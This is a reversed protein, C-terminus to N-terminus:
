FTTSANEPDYLDGGAIIIPINPVKGEALSKLVDAEKVLHEARWADKLFCIKKAASKVQMRLCRLPLSPGPISPKYNALERRAIIAEEETAISVTPDLGRQANSLQSFRLFFEALAKSNTRYNIAESVIVGARDARLIRVDLDRLFVMFIHTRHQRVCMETM